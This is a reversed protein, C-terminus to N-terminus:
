PLGADSDSGSDSGSDSEPRWPAAAGAEVWASTVVHAELVEYRGRLRVLADALFRGSPGPRFTLEGDGAVEVEVDHFDIWRGLGPHLAKFVSEKASFRVLDIRGGDSPESPTLVFARVEPELVAHEEADIGLGVIAGSRAAVAAVLGRTHTISGVVGRPWVPQRDAGVPIAVAPLGLGALSRRACWRGRAFDRIRAPAARAVFSREEEFLPPEPGGPWAGVAVSPPFLAAIRDELSPYLPSRREEKRVSM